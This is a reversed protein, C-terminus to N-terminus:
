RGGSSLSDLALGDGLAFCSNGLAAAHITSSADNHGFGIFKGYFGFWALDKGCVPIGQQGNVSDIGQATPDEGHGLYWASV